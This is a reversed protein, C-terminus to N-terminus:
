QGGLHPTLLKANKKPVHTSSSVFWSDKMSQSCYSYITVYEIESCRNRDQGFKTTGGFSPTLSKANKTPVHTLSSVFWSDKMSQSCYIPTHFLVYEIELCM